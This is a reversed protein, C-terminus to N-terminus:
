LPPRASRRTGSEDVPDPQQDGVRGGIQTTLLGEGEVFFSESGHRIPDMVDGGGDCVSM